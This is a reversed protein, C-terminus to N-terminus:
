ECSMIMGGGPGCIRSAGSGVCNAAQSCNNLSVTNSMVIQPFQRTQLDFAKAQVILGIRIIKINAIDAPNVAIDVPLTVQTGDARFATFIPNARGGNQVNQVETQFTSGQSLPPLADKRVQSRKLCPCNDGATDYWYQVSEVFGDGDVDGEFWLENEAVKVMGVANKLDNQGTIALPAYNRQNPYGAEHLDRELQDMFEREQQFMDLKVQEAASRKQVNSIQQFIAGMMVSLVLLVIMLELMSFGRQSKSACSQNM